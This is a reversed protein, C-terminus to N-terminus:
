EKVEVAEVSLLDKISFRENDKKYDDVLTWICEYQQIDYCTEIYKFCALLASTSNSYIQYGPENVFSVIWVKM